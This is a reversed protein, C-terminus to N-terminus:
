QSNYMPKTDSKTGSETSDLTQDQLICSLYRECFHGSAASLGTTM